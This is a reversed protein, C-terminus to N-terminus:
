LYITPDRRWLNKQLLLVIKEYHRRSLKQGVRWSKYDEKSMTFKNWLVRQLNLPERPLDNFAQGMVDVDDAVRRRTSRASPAIFAIEEAVMGHWVIKSCVTVWCTPPSDMRQRRRIWAGLLRRTEPQIHDIIWDPPEPAATIMM